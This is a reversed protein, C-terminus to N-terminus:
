GIRVCWQRHTPWELTWLWPWSRRYTPGSRRPTGACRRGGSPVWLEPLRLDSVRSVHKNHSEAGSVCRIPSCCPAAAPIRPRGCTGCSCTSCSSRHLCCSRSGIWTRVSSTITYRKRKFPQAYQSAARHLLHMFIASTCSRASDNTPSM